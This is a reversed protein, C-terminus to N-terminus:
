NMLAELEAAMEAPNEITAAVIGVQAARLIFADDRIFSQRVIGSITEAFEGNDGRALVILEVPHIRDSPYDLGDCDDFEVQAVVDDSGPGAVEYYHGRPLPTPTMGMYYPESSPVSGEGVIKWTAEATALM